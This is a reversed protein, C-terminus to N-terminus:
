EGKIIEIIEDELKYYDSGYINSASDDEDKESNPIVIGKEDLFDEFKEIIRIATEKLEFDDM